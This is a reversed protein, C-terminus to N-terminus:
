KKALMLGGVTGSESDVFVSKFERPETSIAHNSKLDGDGLGPCECQAACAAPTVAVALSVCPKSVPETAAWVGQEPCVDSALYGLKSAKRTAIM